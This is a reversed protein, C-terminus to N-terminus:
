TGPRSPYIGLFELYACGKWYRKDPVSEPNKRLGLAHTCEGFVRGPLSLAPLPPLGSCRFSSNGYSLDGLGAGAGLGRTWRPAGAGDERPCPTHVVRGIAPWAGATPVSLTPWAWLPLARHAGACLSPLFATSNARQEGAAASPVAPLKIPSRECVNTFFSHYWRENIM